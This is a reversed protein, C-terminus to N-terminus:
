LQQTGDVGICHIQTCCYCLCWGGTHCALLQVRRYANLTYTSCIDVLSVTVTYKSNVYM